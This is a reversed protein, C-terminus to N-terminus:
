FIKMKFIGEGGAKKRILKSLISSFWKEGLFIAFTFLNIPTVDIKAVYFEIISMNALVVSLTLIVGLFAYIYNYFRFQKEIIRKEEHLRALEEAVNDWKNRIQIAVEDEEDEFNACEHSIREVVEMRKIEVELEQYSLDRANGCIQLITLLFLPLGIANAIHKLYVTPYFISFTALLLMGVTVIVIYLKDQQVLDCNENEMLIGRNGNGINYGGIQSLEM